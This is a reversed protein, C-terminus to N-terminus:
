RSEEGESTSPVADIAVGSIRELEGRADGYAALSELERQRLEFYARQVDLLDFLAFRGVRYGDLVSELTSRAAPLSETRLLRLEHIASSARDYADRLSLRLEISRADLALTAQSARARAAAANSRRRDFLPLELAVGALYDNEDSEALHRVGGSVVFKPISERSALRAEIRRREARQEEARLEPSSALTSALSSWEPLAVSSDGRAVARQFGPETAGWRAALRRRALELETGARDAELRATSLAIRARSDEVPSVKGATVRAAVAEVASEALSALEVLLAAREQGLLVAHFERRTGSAVRLREAELEWAASERARSAVAGRLGRTGWPEIPLSLRLTSEAADLERTAGTGGFSELEFGLEPNALAGAQKAEADLALLEFAAARLAPNAHLALRVADAEHLEAPAALTSEADILSALASSEARALPRSGLTESRPAHACGVLPLLLLVASLRPHM